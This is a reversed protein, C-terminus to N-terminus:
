APSAVAITDAAPRPIHVAVRARATPDFRVGQAAVGQSAGRHVPPQVGHCRSSRHRLGGGVHIHPRTRGQGGLLLYCCDLRACQDRPADSCHRRASKACVSDSDAQGDCRVDLLSKCAIRICLGRKTALEDHRDHPGGVVADVPAPYPARPDNEPERAIPERCLILQYQRQHVDRTQALEVFQMKSHLAQVAVLRRGQDIDDELISRADKGVEVVADQGQSSDAANVIFQLKAPGQVAAAM